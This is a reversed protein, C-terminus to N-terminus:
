KMTVGTAEVEADVLTIEPGPVNPGVPATVTITVTAGLPIEELPGGPSVRIAGGTVGYADLISSGRQQVTALSADAKSVELTAEYAATTLARELFLLNCAQISGFILLVLMPVCVAFEVIAAGRRDPRKRTARM